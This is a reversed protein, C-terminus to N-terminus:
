GEEEDGDEAAEDDKGNGKRKKKQKGDGDGDGDGGDAEGDAKRRRKELSGSNRVTKDLVDKNRLLREVNAHVEAAKWKAKFPVGRAKCMKRLAVASMSAYNMQLPSQSEPSSEEEEEEEEENQETVREKEPEDEEELPARGRVMNIANWGSHTNAGEIEAGPGFGDRAVPINDPGPLHIRVINDAEAYRTALYERDRRMSDDPDDRFKLFGDHLLQLHHNPNLHTEDYATLPPELLTPPRVIRALPEAVTTITRTTTTTIIFTRKNGAFSETATVNPAGTFDEIIMGPFRNEVVPSNAVPSHQQHVHLAIPPVYGQEVDRARLRAAFLEKRTNPNRIALENATIAINRGHCLRRLGASSM